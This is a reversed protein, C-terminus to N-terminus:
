LYAHDGELLTLHFLADRPILNKPDRLFFKGPARRPAFGSLRCAEVIWPTTAYCIAVDAGQCRLEQKLATIAAHWLEEDRSRLFCEVIKGKRLSNASKVNLLAFGILEGGVHLTWGTMKGAPIQLYSNLLASSRTTHIAPSGMPELLPDIGRDFSNVRRLSVKGPPSRGPNTVYDRLDKAAHLWRGAPGGTPGHLRHLPRLIARMVSYEFRLEYGTALAIRQGDASGGLAYQADTAKFGRKMLLLGAMPHEASALLDIFHLASVTSTQADPTPGIQFTRPVIGAHGVIKGGSLAIFSRPGFEIGLPEFYKWRMVEHSFHPADAPEQFGARLFGCLELLDDPETARITFSGFM